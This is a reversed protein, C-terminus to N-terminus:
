LCLGQPLRCVMTGLSLCGGFALAPVCQTQLRVQDETHTDVDELPDEIAASPIDDTDLGYPRYELLGTFESSNEPLDTGLERLRQQLRDIWSLDVVNPDVQVTGHAGHQVTM